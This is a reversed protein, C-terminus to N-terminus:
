DLSGSQIWHAAKELLKQKASLDLSLPLQAIGILRRMIETGAFGALLDDNFGKPKQYLRHITQKVSESQESMEMHALMVGLEFEPLGIFGFEPDIVRIGDVVNLWSGPYYDGHILCTGPSLYLNGLKAIKAKLADNTKYPMAAEQLGKQVTDLDFGNEVLFPFNFIHEHNLKRMSMNDPFQNSDIEFNHLISIFSLLNNLELESLQEGRQYLRTYDSSAGLDQIALIGNAEDFGILAPTFASLDGMGKILEYFRAEVGVREIPADIQPYKEVWPRAQKIIFSREATAIRLVFNMNGEGPKEVLSLSEDQDIWSQEQLYETLRSKDNTLFFRDPYTEQFRTKLDM